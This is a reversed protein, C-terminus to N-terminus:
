EEGEKMYWRNVIAVMQNAIDQVMGLLRWRPLGGGGNSTPLGNGSAWLLEPEGDTDMSEIILLFGTLVGGETREYSDIWMQAGQLMLDRAEGQIEKM